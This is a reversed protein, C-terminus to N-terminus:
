EGKPSNVPLTTNIKLHDLLVDRIALYKPTIDGAESIPADYDYSTVDSYYNSGYNAGASFGLNTGGYFMYFNLNGDMALIDRLTTLVADTDRRAWSNLLCM